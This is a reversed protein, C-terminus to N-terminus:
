SRRKRGPSRWRARSRIASASAWMRLPVEDGRSSSSSRIARRAPAPAAAGLERQCPGGADASGAPRTPTAARHSGWTALTLREDLVDTTLHLVRKRFGAAVADRGDHVVNPPLITVRPGGAGRHRTELDYRIWGDDVVFVTWSDHVHPPYAYDVFRAHFVERVGAVM